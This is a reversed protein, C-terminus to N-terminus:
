LMRPKFNECFQDIVEEVTAFDAIVQAHLYVARSEEGYSHVFYPSARGVRRQAEALEHYRDRGEASSFDLACLQAELDSYLSQDKPTHISPPVYLPIRHALADRYNKSYASYWTRMRESQLYTRLTIPLHSQTRSNFLGVEPRTLKGAKRDGFLDNEFVFVWGLNDFIGSVNVFFAHLNIVVDSLQERPLHATQNPPFLTFVNEICRMVIGLRRAAGHMLFEVAKASKLTPMLVSMRHLLRRYVAGIEQYKEDIEILSRENYPADPSRDDIRM